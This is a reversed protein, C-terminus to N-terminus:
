WGWKSTHHNIGNDLLYLTCIFFYHPIVDFYQLASVPLSGRRWYNRPIPWICSSDRGFIFRRAWNSVVAVRTRWSVQKSCFSLSIWMSIIISLSLSLSTLSLYSTRKNLRMAQCLSLTHQFLKLLKLPLSLSIPLFSVQRAYISYWLWQSGYGISIWDGPLQAATQEGGLPAFQGLHRYSNLSFADRATLRCSSFERIM